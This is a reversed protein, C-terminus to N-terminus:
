VLLYFLGLKVAYFDRPEMVCLHNLNLPVKLVILSYRAKPFISQNSSRYCYYLKKKINHELFMIVSWIPSLIFFYWKELRKQCDKRVDSQRKIPLSKVGQVAVVTSFLKLCCLSYLESKLNFSRYKSWVNSLLPSAMGSCDACHSQWLYSFKHLARLLAVSTSPLFEDALETM